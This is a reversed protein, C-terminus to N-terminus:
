KPLLSIFFLVPFLLIEVKLIESNQKIGIKNIKLIIPANFFALDWNRLDKQFKARM